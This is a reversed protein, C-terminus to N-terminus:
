NSHRCEEESDIGNEEDEQLDLLAIARDLSWANDKLLEDQYSTRRFFSRTPLNQRDLQRDVHHGHFGKVGQSTALPTTSAAQHAEKDSHISKHLCEVFIESDSNKGTLKMDADSTSGTTHVQKKKTNGFSRSTGRSTGM